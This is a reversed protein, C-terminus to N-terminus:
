GLFLLFVLSERVVYGKVVTLYEVQVIAAQPM